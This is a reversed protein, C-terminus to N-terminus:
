ILEVMSDQSDEVWALAEFYAEGIEGRTLGMWHVNRWDGREYAIVCKLAGGLTGEFNLLASSIDDALPLETVVREMPLGLMADLVSFLGVTYFKECTGVGQESALSECMRARLLATRILERPPNGLGRISLLTLWNKIGRVGLVAAAHRLSDVKRHLDTNSSNILRMLKYGLVVDRRLLKDLEDLGVHPEQLKVMIEISSVRDTTLGPGEIVNPYCLFYGQFFDFGLKKCFDYEAHTEVKEAMLKLHRGELLRVHREVDARSMAQIDIKVIDAVEVLEERCQEYVFDDLAIRYGQASLQRLSRLVEDDAVVSELVELVVREAPLPIPINGVLFNRTLNVYAPYDGVVQDLGIDLFSNLMVQISALDPDSFEAKTDTASGRYLLEYGVVNLDRDFIPQRGVTVRSTLTTEQQTAGNIPLGWPDLISSSLTEQLVGTPTLMKVFAANHRGFSQRGLLSIVRLGNYSIVFSSQCARQMM